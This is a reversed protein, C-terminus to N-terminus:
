VGLEDLLQEVDSRSEKVPFVNRNEVSTGNQSNTKNLFEQLDNEEVYYRGGVRIAPLVVKTDGILVGQTRWRHATSIHINTGIVNKIRNMPILKTCAM